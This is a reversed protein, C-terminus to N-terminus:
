IKATLATAYYDPTHKKGVFMSVFEMLPMDKLMVRLLCWRGCSNVGDTKEQLEFPNCIVLAKTKELLRSLYPTKVFNAYKLQSDVDGGYSDFFEYCNHRSNLVVWHGSMPSNQYLIICNEYPELIDEINKVNKLDSYMIIKTKGELADIIEFNTLSRGTLKKIKSNTINM